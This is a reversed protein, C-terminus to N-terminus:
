LLIAFCCRLQLLHLGNLRSIIDGKREESFFGLHLNLVKKYIKNRIDRVIGNRLPAMFFNALYTFMNKLLVTVFIFISITFLAKLKGDHVIVQSLYYNFLDLLAKSSLGFEPRELVLADPNFLIRLFPIVLTFSFLSFVSGLLNFLVNLLANIKYPKIYPLVIKIFERM